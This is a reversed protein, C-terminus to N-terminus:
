EVRASEAELERRWKRLEALAQVHCWNNVENRAIREEKPVHGKVHRFEIKIGQARIRQIKLYMSKFEGPSGGEGWNRIWRTGTRSLIRIAADCDTQAIIKDGPGMEFRVYALHIINTIAAAEALAADEYRKRLRGVERIRYKECKAWLGYTGIKLEPCHSADAFVTALM